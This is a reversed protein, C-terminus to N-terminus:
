SPGILNARQKSRSSPDIIPVNHPKRHKHLPEQITIDRTMLKTLPDFNTYIYLNHYDQFCFHLSYVLGKFCKLTFTKTDDQNKVLLPAINQIKSIFNTTLLIFQMSLKVSQLTENTSIGSTFFHKLNQLNALQFAFHVIKLTV